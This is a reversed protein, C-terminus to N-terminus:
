GTVEVTKKVCASFGCTQKTKKQSGRKLDTLTKLPGRKLIFYTTTNITRYRLLLDNTPRGTARYMKYKQVQM